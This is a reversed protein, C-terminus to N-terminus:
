RRPPMTWAAVSRRGFAAGSATMDAADGVPSMTKALGFDLIKVMGERTVFLNEPKLM